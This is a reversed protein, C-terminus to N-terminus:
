NNNIMQKAIEDRDRLYSAIIWADYINAQESKDYYYPNANNVEAIKGNDVYKVVKVALLQNNVHCSDGSLYSLQVDHTLTSNYLWEIHEQTDCLPTNSLIVYKVEDFWKKDAYNQQALISIAFFLFIFFFFLLIIKKM